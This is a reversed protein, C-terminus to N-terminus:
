SAINFGYLSGYVRLKQKLIQRALHIRTKVTGIPIRFHDAIEQYKYGNFNMLFSEKLDNPLANIAGNLDDLVFMSEAENGLSHSESNLYFGEDTSDSFTNQKVKRRYDNIFTNKMITYLWGKLNTGEQFKGFHCYAKLLTEQLLDNADESNQTLYYAYSKLSSSHIKVSATYNVADSM